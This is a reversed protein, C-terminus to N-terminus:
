RNARRRAVEFVLLTAAMAVNLSEARGAHPVTVWADVGCDAELGHAENGLVLMSPAAFDAEVYSIGQHSSTGWSRAPSATLVAALDVDVILLPCTFVAGASARVAKPNFVDVSGTTFVVADVGAAEASRLMTGANGPDTIRDGVLVATSSVLAELSGVRREVVALAPQPTETSAVRELVGPALEYREADLDDLAGVGAPVYLSDLRWGNSAALRILGEGEVVFRGEELRASRRGM